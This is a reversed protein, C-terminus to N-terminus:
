AEQRVGIDGLTEESFCVKNVATDDKALFKHSKLNGCCNQQPNLDQPIYHM